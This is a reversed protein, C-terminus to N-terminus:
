RSLEISLRIQSLRAARSRLAGPGPGPANRKSSFDPPTLNLIFKPPSTTLDGASFHKGM